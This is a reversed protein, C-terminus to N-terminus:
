FVRDEWISYGSTGAAHHEWTITEYNLSIMEEPQNGSHDITHPYIISVGNLYAKRVTISYYLEQSGSSSARYMDFKLELEENNSIAVGLLPSSKDIFKVFSLPGHNVNKVRNISHEMSIVMIQNLHNEQFKNGISDYSSCGASLVGQQKGTITVYILNSM